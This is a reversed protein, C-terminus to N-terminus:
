SHRPFTGFRRLPAVRYETRLLQAPNEDSSRCLCDIANIESIRGELGLLSQADALLMYITLDDRTGKEPRVSAVDYSRGRLELKGGGTVGLRRGLEAGLEVTGKAVPLVM